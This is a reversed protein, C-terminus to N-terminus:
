CNKTGFKMYITHIAECENCNNYIVNSGVFYNGIYSTHTYTPVGTSTQYFSWCDGNIDKLVKGPTTTTGPLTQVLFETGDCKQYIYYTPLIYCDTTAPNINGNTISSNTIDNNYYCSTPTATNITTSWSNNPTTLSITANNNYLTESLNKNIWVQTGVVIGDYFTGNKGVYADPIFMGDTEGAVAPRVLRISCGYNKSFIDRFVDSSYSELRRTVMLSGNTTPPTLLSNASWWLGEFGLGSFVGTNSRRGGATGAWGSSSVNTQAGINPNEWCTANLDRTYDKMKGGSITGLSGIATLNTPATGNNLFTVLTNWDSETPIVWTSANTPSTNVIGGIGRGQLTFGGKDVVYGNYLRGHTCELCNGCPVSSGTTLCESCPTSGLPITGPPCSSSIPSTDFNYTLPSTATDWIVDLDNLSTANAIQTATNNIIFGSFGKYLGNTDRGELSISHCGASMSVPYIHYCSYGFNDGLSGRMDVSIHSNLNPNRSNYHMQNYNNQNTWNSQSINVIVNGDLKLRFVDDAIIAAYYTKTTPVTIYSGGGWWNTYNPIDIMNTNALNNQWGAVSILIGDGYIGQTSYGLAAYQAVISPNYTSPKWWFSASLINFAYQTKFANPNTLLPNPILTSASTPSFGNVSFDYYLVPKKGGWALNSVHTIPMSQGTTVINPINFSSSPVCQGPSSSTVYGEPCPCPYEINQYSTSSGTIICDTPSTNCGMLTVCVNDIHVRASGSCGVYFTLGPTSTTITFTNATPINSLIPTIYAGGNVSVGATPNIDGSQWAQFCVEYSCTNNAGESNLVSPFALPQNLYLSSTGSSLPTNVTAMASGGGLYWGGLGSIFATPQYNWDQSGNFGPNLITNTTQDCPCYSPQPGCKADLCQTLSGYPGPNLATGPTCIYNICDWGYSPPIESCSISCSALTTWEGPSGSVASVCTGNICNYGWDVDGPHPNFEPCLKNPLTYPAVQLLFYGLNGFFNYWPPTLPTDNFYPCTAATGSSVHFYTTNANVNTTAGTFTATPVAVWKNQNTIQTTGGGYNNVTYTIGTKYFITYNTTTGYVAASSFDPLTMKWVKQGNVYTGTSPSVTVSGWFNWFNEDTFEAYLCDKCLAMPKVPKPIPKLADINTILGGKTAYTKTGDINVSVVYTDKITINNIIEITLTIASSDSLVIEPITNLFDILDQKTHSPVSIYSEDKVNQLLGRADEDSSINTNGIVEELGPVPTGKFYMSDKLVDYQIFSYTTM